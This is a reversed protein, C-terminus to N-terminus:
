EFFEAHIAKISKELAEDRVLFYYAARSAGSSMMEVNINSDAVATLVKAALGKTEALGKGVVAIVAIDPIQQISEVYPIQLDRLILSSKELDGSSVLLSMATQSTVISRTHIDSDGLASIVERLFGVQCGLGAGLCKIIGLNRSFTISKIVDERGQRDSSILTGEAEPRYTNKIVIPIQKAHLPEVTRPHLIKAGFYALEAAEDYSLHSVLKPNEVIEPSASLFGDVDKWIQLVEANMAHSVVAASYDTGGRGFTIPHHDKTRGFFGTIVPITGRELLPLIHNPLKEEIQDLDANGCGWQGVAIIDVADADLAKSEVGHAKLCEAVIRASLREGNSVIRDQMRPTCEGTYAVGFLLKEFGALLSEVEKMARLRHEVTPISGIILNRHLTHFDEVISGIGRHNELAARISALLHDTVGNVASAVIIKKKEEESRIIEAVRLLSEADRLSSGGFKMVIM